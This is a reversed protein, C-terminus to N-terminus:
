LGQGGRGGLKFTEVPATSTAERTPAKGSDGCGTLLAAALLGAMMGTAAKHMMKMM